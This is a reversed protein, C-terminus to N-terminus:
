LGAGAALKLFSIMFSRVIGNMVTKELIQVLKKKIKNRLRPCSMLMIMFILVIIFIALFFVFTLSDDLVSANEDSDVINSKM